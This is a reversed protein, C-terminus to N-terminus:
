KPALGGRHAELFPAVGFLAVAKRASLAVQVLRAQAVGRCESQLRSVEADMDSAQRCWGAVEFPNFVAWKVGSGDSMSQYSGLLAGKRNCSVWEDIRPAAGPSAKLDIIYYGPDCARSERVQSDSILFIETRALRQDRRSLQDLSVRVRLAAQSALPVQACLKKSFRGSFVSGVPVTKSSFGFWSNETEEVSKAGFAFSEPSLDDADAFLGVLAQQLTRTAAMQGYADTLGDVYVVLNGTGCPAEEHAAHVQAPGLFLFSVGMLGFL